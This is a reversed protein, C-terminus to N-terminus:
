TTQTQKIFFIHQSPSLGTVNSAGQTWQGILSCYSRSRFHKFCYIDDQKNTKLFICTTLSEFEHAGQM